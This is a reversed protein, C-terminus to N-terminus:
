LKTLTIRNSNIIEVKMNGLRQGLYIMPGESFDVAEIQKLGIMRYSYKANINYIFMVIGDEFIVADDLNLTTEVNGRRTKLEIVETVDYQKAIEETKM